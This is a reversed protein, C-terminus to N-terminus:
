NGRIILYIQIGVFIFNAITFIIIAKTLNSMTKTHKLMDENIKLTKNTQNLMKKSIKASSEDLKNISNNIANNTKEITTDLKRTAKLAYWRQLMSYGKDTIFFEDGKKQIFKANRLASIVGRDVHMNNPNIIGYRSQENFELLQTILNDKAPINDYM